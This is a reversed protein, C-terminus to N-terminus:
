DGKKNRKELEEQLTIMEIIIYKSRLYILAAGLEQEPTPNEIEQFGELAKQIEEAEKLLELTKIYLDLHEILGQACAQAQAQANTKTAM